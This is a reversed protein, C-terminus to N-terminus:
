EREGAGSKREEPIGRGREREKMKENGVPPIRSV